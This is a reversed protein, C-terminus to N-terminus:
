ERSQSKMKENYGIDFLHERDYEGHKNEVEYEVWCVQETDDQSQESSSTLKLNKQETRRM